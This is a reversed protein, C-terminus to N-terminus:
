GEIHSELDKFMNDINMNRKLIIDFEKAYDYILDKGDEKGIFEKAVELDPKSTPKVPAKPEVLDSFTIEDFKLKKEIMPTNKIKDWDADSLKNRGTKLVIHKLEDGEMYTATKTGAGLVKVIVSM